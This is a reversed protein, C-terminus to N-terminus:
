TSRDDEDGIREMEKTALHVLRADGGEVLYGVHADMKADPLLRGHYAIGIASQSEIGPGVWLGDRATMHAKFWDEHAFAADSAKDMLILTVASGPQLAKIRAKLVSAAAPPCRALFGSIGTVVVTVPRVQEAELLESLFSLALEHKRTAFACGLPREKMLAAMDLFAVDRDGNAVLVAILAAAFAAGTKQKLFACRSLPAESLDFAALALTDDFLGFAACGCTDVQDLLLEPSVRKPPMPVAAACDRPDAAAQSAACTERIRASCQEDDEGISGAQFEFLEEGIRVLGRGRGQPIPAGRLAGFIAGYESRDSLDCALVQRFCGRMRMRLAGATEAVVIWRIGARASERLIRVLADECAPHADLFAAVGNLVIIMPPPASRDGKIRSGRGKGVASSRREAIVTEMFGFFRQVREGDDAAIVDGIHPAASFAALSGSGMDLLYAHLASPAHRRILSFLAISVIQEAGSAAAGYVVVNEGEALSLVLPRQAQHHPDDYFGITVGLSGDQECASGGEEIDEWPIRAPLPPLWLREARKSLLRGVDVIHEAIAVAQSRMRMLPGDLAEKRHSSMSILTRGTNSICSVASERVDIVSGDCGCLAGAFGSQGEEFLEDCGVMLFFRGPQTIHAADPRKIVERSDMADTVKLAIKLRANSWIQDNVVGSPRQTALLLHLGLSRGIRSASILEDMFDPEQQKLEAFEDAILILHPCPEALRGQRYLELYAHIDVSEGGNVERAENFLRQRRQLESRISALSRAISAGDLNTITGAVHPLCFRENDFARALGGGKYDILVFAVEDPAYSLAMSLVYTILFESKGSGTTGAILGHPGHADEHVDLMFPNGPGDVGVCAALSSSPDSARWRQAINLHAVNGVEFMDLFSLRDPLQEAGEDSEFRASAVDAVFRVADSPSAPADIKVVGRAGTPDHRDLVCAEGEQGESIITQCRAPLEHMQRACAILSFGREGGKALVEKVLRVHSWVAKAPCAIVIFPQPARGEADASGLRAELVKELQAGLANAEEISAAFFRVARSESFLHPLHKVFEWASATEEDCLVVLRVDRPAHLACIQIILNRLMGDTFAASGIIGLMRDRALAHVIPADAICLREQAFAELASRVDDERPDFRMEPFRVDAILPIEGRGIRLDLFDEHFPNRAMLREDRVRAIGLCEVASVRNEELIEKQLAAERKICARMHGLYQSYALRRRTEARLHRQHQFRRNAIPWAVSGMLMAAAMAFLPVARLMSGGVGMMLTASVSASMLSAMVMALSPGIRMAIPVDDEEQLQPPEDVIFSKREISRLLRLAPHFAVREPLPADDADADQVPHFPVFREESRMSVADEPDNLSIFGKGITIRLGLISVVEGISVDVTSGCPVRLGDVFVGNASGLDKVMFRGARYALEGHHASIYPSRYVIGNDEARGISIRVDGSLGVIRTVKDGRASPRCLVTWAVGEREVAFIATEWRSLMIRDAARETSFVAPAAPSLLWGGESAEAFAVRRGKADKLWYAGQEEEPLAVLSSTEESQVTVLM